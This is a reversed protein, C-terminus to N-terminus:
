PNKWRFHTAPPSATACLDTFTIRLADPPANILHSIIVARGRPADHIGSSYDEHLFIAASWNKIM